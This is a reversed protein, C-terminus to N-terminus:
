FVNGEVMQTGKIKSGDVVTVQLPNIERVKDSNMKLFKNSLFNHSSSTDVLIHLTRNGIAGKIRM